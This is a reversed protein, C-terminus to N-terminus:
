DHLEETKKNKSKLYWGLAGLGTVVGAIVAYNRNKDSSVGGTSAISESPNANSGSGTGSGGSTAEAQQGKRALKELKEQEAKKIYVNEAAKEEESLIKGSSSFRRSVFRVAQRTAM